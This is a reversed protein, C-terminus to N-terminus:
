PGKAKAYALFHNRSYEWDLDKSCPSNIYLLINMQLSDSKNYFKTHSLYKYRIHM